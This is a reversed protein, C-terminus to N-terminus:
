ESILPSRRRKATTTATGPALAISVNAGSVTFNSTAGRVGTQGTTPRYEDAVSLAMSEEGSGILFRFNMSPSPSLGVDSSGAGWMCVLLCNAISTTVSPAYHATSNSTGSGNSANIPTDLNVNDYATARYSYRNLTNPISDNVTIVQSTAGNGTRRFVTMLQENVGAGIVGTWGAPTELSPNGQYYELYVVLLLLQSSTNPPLTATFQTNSAVLNGYGDASGAEAIPAYFPAAIAKGTHPLSALLLSACLLLSLIVKRM